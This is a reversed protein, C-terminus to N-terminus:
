VCEFFQLGFPQRYDLERLRDRVHPWCCLAEIFGDGRPTDAVVSVRPQGPMEIVSLQLHSRIASTELFVRPVRWVLDVESDARDHSEVASVIPEIIHRPRPVDFADRDFLDAENPLVAM